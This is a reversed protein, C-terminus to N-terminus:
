YAICSNEHLHLILSRTCCHCHHRCWLNLGHSSYSVKTQPTKHNYRYLTWFRQSVWPKLQVWSWSKYKRANQLYSNRIKFFIWFLRSQLYRHTSEAALWTISPVCLSSCRDLYEQVWHERDGVQLLPRFNWHSSRSSNSLFWDILFM